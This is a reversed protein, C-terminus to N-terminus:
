FKKEKQVHQMRKATLLYKPVHTKMVRRVDSNYQFKEILKRDYLKKMEERKSVVGM